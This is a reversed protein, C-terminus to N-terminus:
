PGPDRSDAGRAMVPLWPFDHDDIRFQYIWPGLKAFEESLNAEKM